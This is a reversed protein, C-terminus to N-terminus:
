KAAYGGEIEHDLDSLSHLSMDIGISQLQQVTPYAMEIYRATLGVVLNGQQQLKRIVGATTPEVTKFDSEMLIHHWMPVMKYLVELKTEGNEKMLRKVEYAAWHDSGLPKTTEMLVHNLDTVVLTDEDTYKLMDRIDFSEHIEASLYSSLLALATFVSLFNRKM